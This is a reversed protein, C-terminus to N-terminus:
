EPLEVALLAEDSPRQQESKWVAIYAGEGPEKGPELDDQCVFDKDPEFGLAILREALRYM